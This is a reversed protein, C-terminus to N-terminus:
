SSASPTSSTAARTSRSSTPASCCTSASPRSAPAPAVPPNGYNTTFGTSTNPGTSYDGANGSSMVIGGGVLGYNNFGNTTCTGTSMQGTGLSHGSLTSATINIGGGPPARTTALTATNNTNVVSIQGAAAGAICAAVMSGFAKSYM